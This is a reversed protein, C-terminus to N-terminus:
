SHRSQHEEEQSYYFAEQNSQGSVRDFRGNSQRQSMQLIPSLVIM